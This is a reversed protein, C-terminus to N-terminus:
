VHGLFAFSFLLFLEQKLQMSSMLLMRKQEPVPRRDKLRQAM